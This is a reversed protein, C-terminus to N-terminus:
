ARRSARHRVARRPPGEPDARLGGAARPDGEAHLARACRPRVSRAGVARDVPEQRNASRRAYRHSLRRGRGGGGRPRRPLRGARTYRVLAAVDSAVFMEREGVGIVVPSGNRAAVIRDPQRGDIVAIGYTGQSRGGAGAAGGARARRRYAEILHALVETDTDSRFVHGKAELEARLAAATRSSATTCWRSTAAATSTRTRTSTTRSATRRGARTRSASPARAAAAAATAELQRVKGAAKHVKLGGRTIVAVGASDYGRYELRHLGAFLMPLADQRGVYGVIGCMRGGRERGKRGHGEGTLRLGDPSDPARQAGARCLPARAARGPHPTFIDANKLEEGQLEAHRRAVFQEVVRCLLRAGRGRDREAEARTLRTTRELHEVLEVFAAGDAM